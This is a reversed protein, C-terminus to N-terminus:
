SMNATDLKEIQSCSMARWRNLHEKIERLLIKYNGLASNKKNRENFKNM